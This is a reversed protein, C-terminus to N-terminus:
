EYKKDNKKDRASGPPATPTKGAKQASDRVEVSTPQGEIKKLINGPAEIVIKSVDTVTSDPFTKVEDATLGGPLGDPSLHTVRPFVGKYPPVNDKPIIDFARAARVIDIGISVVYDGYGTAIDFGGGINVFYPNVDLGATMHLRNSQDAIRSFEYYSGTAAEVKLNSYEAVV